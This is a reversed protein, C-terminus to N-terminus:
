LRIACAMDEIEKHTLGADAAEEKWHSVVDKVEGVIERAREVSIGWFPAAGLFANIDFSNCQEDWTLCLHEISPSPNIDFAPALHWGSDNLLFGHNRLHDDGDGIAMKFAVRRYLQEAELVRDRCIKEIIMLIELYSRAEHNRDAGLLARTSFYHRRGKATRDFRRTVFITGDVLDFPAVEIGARLALRTMAFEWAGMNRTDYISPFKAIWQSGDAEEFGIKPRSGGLASAARVLPELTAASLLRKEEFARILEGYAALESRRPLMTPSIGVFSEPATEPSFRMAGMRESDAITTLVETESLEHAAREDRRACAKEYRDLIARGWSDPLSDTMLALAHPSQPLSEIPNFRVSEANGTWSQSFEFRGDALRMRGVAVPEPTEEDASWATLFEHAKLNLMVKKKKKYLTRVNIDRSYYAVKTIDAHRKSSSNIVVPLFPRNLLFPRTLPPSLLSPPRSFRAPAAAFIPSRKRILCLLPRACAWM